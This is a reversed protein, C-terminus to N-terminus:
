LAGRRWVASSCRAGRRMMWHAHRYPGWSAARAFRRRLGWMSATHAVISPRFEVWSVGHSSRVADGHQRRRV